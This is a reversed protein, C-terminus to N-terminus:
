CVLEELKKLDEATEITICPFKRDIRKLFGALTKGPGIEVFVEVGMEIMKEVSQQWRVSESVQRVLLGEIASSDAVPEAITNSVYPIDSDMWTVKSLEPKLQEGAGKLMSSHFPGSVKLPAVRKAGAAKIAAGAKEVAEAEGSIVIQGPCNYNAPEVIGGTNRCIEEVKEFDLGMVASMAGGVPVAEQMFLGRREIVRLADQWSMKKAAVLAGYEGLSLGATVAPVIGKAEIVKLMAIETALLAPQTYRTINLRDNEEFCLAKMDMNLNESAWDYVERSEEFGEYFDQGMGLKQAGQGPFIFATKKM